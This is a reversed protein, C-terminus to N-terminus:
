NAFYKDFSPTVSKGQEKQKQLKKYRQLEKLDILLASSEVQYNLVQGQELAQVLYRMALAKNKLLAYVEAFYLSMKPKENGYLHLTILQNKFKEALVKDIKDQPELGNQQLLLLLINAHNLPQNKRKNAVKQYYTKATELKGQYFYSDAM